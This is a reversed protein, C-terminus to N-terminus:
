LIVDNTPEVIDLPPNGVLRIQLDLSGPISFGIVEATLVGNNYSLQNLAFAQNGPENLNADITSLDIRDGLAAGNGNFDVISDYIGEPNNEEFGPSDSVADYDFVDNGNGGSLLDEGSGGYLLDIGEGGYLMDNGGYGYLEDNGEYGYIADDDSTGKLSPFFKKQLSPDIPRWLDVTPSVDRPPPDISWRMVWQSTDNDHYSTGRITAM